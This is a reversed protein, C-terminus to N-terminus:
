SPLIAKLLINKNLPTENRKPFSLDDKNSSTKKPPVYVGRYRLASVFKVYQDVTLGYKGALRINSFNPHESVLQKIDIEPKNVVKCFNIFAPTYCDNITIAERGHTWKVYKGEVLAKIFPYHKSDPKMKPFIERAKKRDVSRFSKRGVKIVDNYEINTMKM